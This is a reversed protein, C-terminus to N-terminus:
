GPSGDSERLQRGLWEEASVKGDQNKDMRKWMEEHFKMYEDRTVYGKSGKDMMHMVEMPKQSLFNEYNGPSGDTAAFAATSALLAAGAILGLLKNRNFDIM